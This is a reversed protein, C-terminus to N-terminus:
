KKQMEVILFHAPLNKASITIDIPGYLKAADHSMMPVEICKDSDAANQKVLADKSEIALVYAQRDEPVHFCIDNGAAIESVFINADQHIKIPTKASANVGSCLHQWVGKRQAEDGVYSGYNVPLDRQTPNIWMQIFRCPKDPSDNRESHRVGTGATMYQVSGRGLTEMNGKSDQHTLQGDVVYTVIEMDRHPHTGFGREPQVLDDNMVRLVGFNSRDRDHYEAFSFHFRSKLWNENTWNKTMKNSPNGFMYPSPESVFLSSAPVKEIVSTKM